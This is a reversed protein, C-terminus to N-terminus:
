IDTYYAFNDLKKSKGSDMAYCGESIQCLSGWITVRQLTISLMMM